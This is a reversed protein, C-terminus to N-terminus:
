WQLIMFFAINSYGPVICKKFLAHKTKSSAKAGVFLKTADAFGDEEDEGEFCRPMKTPSPAVKAVFSPGTFHTKCYMLGYMIM